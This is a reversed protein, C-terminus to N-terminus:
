SVIGNRLFRVCEAMDSPLESQFCMEKGTVPHMFALRFSHLAQRIVNKQFFCKYANQLNPHAYSLDRKASSYVEDGLVPHNIASLHVRIQHTRGTYISVELLCYYQFDEVIKYFTTAEKGGEGVAMKKRDTKHRQILLHIGSEPPEPVGCCICLYTKKIHRQMFIDSLLKHTKDNKAIMMLGSTDKDLRHVIGPRKHVASDTLNSLNQNFHYILANVLTGSQHGAGPHVVLGAPKDIIALWEDEFIIRLPIDEGQLSTYNTALDLTMQVTIQDNIKLQLGKKTCQVGNIFVSGCEILREVQSRSYLKEYNQAMIFKDLRENVHESTVTFTPAGYINDSVVDLSRV